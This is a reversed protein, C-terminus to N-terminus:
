RENPVETREFEIVWVWPNSKWPYGRKANLSDWLLAFAREPKACAAGRMANDAYSGSNYKSCIWEIVGEALADESSIDQLREVRVGTVRLFIRAAEKPMHISPWYEQESYLKSEYKEYDDISITKQFGEQTNGESKYGIVAKMTEEDVDEVTWTEQVWLIDGPQYRPKITDVFPKGDESHSITLLKGDRCVEIEKFKNYAVGDKTVGGPQPKVVRRDQTKRGDLIARVMETNFPIPKM